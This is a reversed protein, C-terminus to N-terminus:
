REGNALRWTMGSHSKSKGSICRHILSRDFGGVHVADYISDFTYEAGTRVCTAVVPKCRPNSASHVFIRSRTRNHCGPILEKTLTWRIGKSKRIHEMKKMVRWPDLNFQTEVDRWTAGEERGMIWEAIVLTMPKAM